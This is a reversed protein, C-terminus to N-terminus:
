EKPLVGGRQRSRDWVEPGYHIWLRSHGDENVVLPHEGTFELVRPAALDESARARALPGSSMAALQVGWQPLGIPAANPAERRDLEDAAVHGTEKLVTDRIFYM